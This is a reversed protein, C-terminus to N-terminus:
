VVTVTVTSNKPAQSNPGPNQSQVHDGFIGGLPRDIQVQFGADRLIKTAEDERKGSVDPVTTLAGGQSVTLTITQGHGAQKGEGGPPDQSTM